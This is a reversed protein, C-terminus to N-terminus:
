IIVCYNRGLRERKEQLPSFPVYFSVQWLVLFAPLPSVCKYNWCKSPQPLLIALELNAQALCLFRGALILLCGLVVNTDLFM